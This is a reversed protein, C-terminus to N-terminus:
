LTFIGLLESLWFDLQRDVIVEGEAGGVDNDEAGFLGCLKFRALGFDPSFGELAELAEFSWGLGAM